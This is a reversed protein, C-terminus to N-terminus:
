PETEKFICIQLMRSLPETDFVSEEMTELLHETTVRSWDVAYGNHHLLQRIFERTARGNGERFPHIYNLEAFYYALREGFAAGHLKRLHHEATLELLLQKLKPAIQDPALFITHGKAISERRFHGAFPYIDGFLYRHIACLHHSTFRGRIPHNLLDMQRIATIDAEVQRLEDADRIGFRNRLVATGAYCYVSGATAYVDYKGFGDAM